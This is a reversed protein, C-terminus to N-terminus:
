RSSCIISFSTSQPSLRAAQPNLLSCGVRSGRGRGQAEEINRFFKGRDNQRLEVYFYKREIQLERAEIINDMKGPAASEVGTPKPFPLFFPPRKASKEAPCGNGKRVSLAGNG